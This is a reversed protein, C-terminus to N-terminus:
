QTTKLEVTLQDRVPNPFIYFDTKSFAMEITNTPIDLGNPYLKILEIKNTFRNGGFTVISDEVKSTTKYPV